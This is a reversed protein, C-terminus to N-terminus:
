IIIIKILNTKNSRLQNDYLFRVVQFSKQQFYEVLPNTFTFLWLNLKKKRIVGMLILKYQAICSKNVRVTAM